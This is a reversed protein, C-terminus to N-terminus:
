FPWKSLLEDRAWGRFRAARGQFTARRPALAVKLPGSEPPIEYSNRPRGPLDGTRPPIAPLHGKSPGDPHFGGTGLGPRVAKSPHNLRKDM